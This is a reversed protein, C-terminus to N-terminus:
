SRAARLAVINESLTKGEIADALTQGWAEMARVQEPWRQARQYVGLVGGRTASQRHNLVADAVPEPIGLEAVTTAFSRRFDHIVWGTMGAANDLDRKIASYTTLTRGSIPAPFVLGNAPTGANRHRAHLMDMALGPLHFRHADGNKTIRGPQDWTCASLNLDAWDLQSAEERRCPVAMLFRAWDRRVPLLADAANWLRAIEEPRLFRQRAPPAKPRSQRSLGECPNRSLHGRDKCWDLFRSVAGFRARATAPADALDDLMRRLKRETLDGVPVDEAKMAAVAARAHLLEGSVHAASPRGTGRMKPRRPLASAYTDLLRAITTARKENAVEALARRDAAPDAGTAISGKIAGAKARADKISLTEPNGLSVDQNPWRKGTAPDVGRPRYSYAWRWTTANVVLALGRCEADRIILRCDPKRRRWAANTTADTIRIPGESVIQVAGESKRRQCSM